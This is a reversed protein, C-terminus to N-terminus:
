ARRLLPDDAPVPEPDTVDIGAGAIAREHPRAGLASQEVIPGRATNILYATPKM